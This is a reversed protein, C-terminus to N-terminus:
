ENDKRRKAYRVIVIAAVCGLAITVPWWLSRRPRSVKKLVRVATRTVSVTDSKESQRVQRRFRGARAKVKAASATLTAPGVRLSVDSLRLELDIAITDRVSDRITVHEVKEAHCADQETVAEHKTRCAAGALALAAIATYPICHRM